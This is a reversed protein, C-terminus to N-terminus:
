APVLRHEYRWTALAQEALRLGTRLRSPAARSLTRAPRDALDVSLDDFGAGLVGPLRAADRCLAQFRAIVAGNPRRRDRSLM